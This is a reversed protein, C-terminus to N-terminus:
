QSHLLTNNSDEEWQKNSPLSNIKAFTVVNKPCGIHTYIGSQPLIQFSANKDPEGLKYNNDLRTDLQSACTKDIYWHEYIIFRILQESSKEPLQQQQLGNYPDLEKLAQQKLCVQVLLTPFVWAVFM